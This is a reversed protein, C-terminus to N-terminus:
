SVSKVAPRGTDQGAMGRDVNGHTLPEGAPPPAEPLNRGPKSASGPPRRESSRRRPHRPLGGGGGGGATVPAPGAGGEEPLEITELLDIEELEEIMEFAPALDTVSPPSDDFVPLELHSVAEVREEVLEVPPVFRGPEEQM